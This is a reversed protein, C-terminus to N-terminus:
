MKQEKLTNENTQVNAMEEQLKQEYAGLVSNILEERSEATIPHFIDKYETEGNKEYSRAPMSVYLGKESEMVKIGHVAFGSITISAFAIVKSEEIDIMKDIQAKINNNSKQEKNEKKEVKTNKNTTAM